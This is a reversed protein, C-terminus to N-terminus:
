VLAGAGETKGQARACEFVLGGLEDEIGLFWARLKEEAGSEKGQVWSLVDRGRLPGQADCYKEWARYRAAWEDATPAEWIHTPLPLPATPYFSCLATPASQRAQTVYDLAHLTFFARHISEIAIWDQWATPLPNTPLTMCPLNKSLVHQMLRLPIRDICESAIPGARYVRMCAYLLVAQLMSIEDRESQMATVKLQFQGLQADIARLLVADSQVTRTAYMYLQGVTVAETLAAPRQAVDWDQFHVFFPKQLGTVFNDVNVKLVSDIFDLGQQTTKWKESLYSSLDQFHCPERAQAFRPNSDLNITEDLGGLGLSLDPCDFNGEFLPLAGAQWEAEAGPPWAPVPLFDAPPRGGLPGERDPPAWQQSHPSSPSPTLPVTVLSGSSVPHPGNPTVRLGELHPYVCVLSHVVCRSCSPLAQDCRVKSRSCEACAKRRSTPRFRCRLRHRELTPVSPFTRSCSSCSLPEM